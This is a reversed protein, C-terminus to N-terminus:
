FKLIRIKIKQKLKLGNIVVKNNSKRILTPLIKTHIEQIMTNSFQKRNPTTGACTPM